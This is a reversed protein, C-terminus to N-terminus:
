GVRAAAAPRATGARWAHWLSSPITALKEGLSLSARRTFVDYDNARIKDLIGGYADAAFQFAARGRASTMLPILELGEAYLYRARRIEFEMLERFALDDVHRPLEERSLGFRELDEDPLYVMGRAHDQGVDRLINTLQMATGLAKAYELAGTGKAYGAVPTILLGITGAVRYCYLDLEAFTRYRCRDLDMELGLILDEFPTLPIDYKRVADGLVLWRPEVPEGAVASRLQVLMQHLAQKIQAPDAGPAREDVLDDAVRAFGYIAAIADGREEGLLKAMMHFTKGHVRLINWCDALGLTRAERDSRPASTSPAHSM